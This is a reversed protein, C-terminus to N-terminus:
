RLCRRSISMLVECAFGPVWGMVLQKAGTAFSIRCRGSRQRSANALLLWQISPQAAANSVM